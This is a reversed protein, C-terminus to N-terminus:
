TRARKPPLVAIVEVKLVKALMVLEADTVCRLQAEIKSLTGRSLDWGLISCRAAFMEQTLGQQYRLKRIQPGVINQPKTM